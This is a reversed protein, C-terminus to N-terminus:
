LSISNLRTGLFFFSEHYLYNTCSVLMYFRLLSKYSGNVFLFIDQSPGIGCILLGVLYRFPNM